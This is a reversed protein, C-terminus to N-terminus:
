LMSSAKRVMSRRVEASQSATLSSPRVTRATTRRSMPTGTHTPIAGFRVKLLSAFRQALLSSIKPPTQTQGAVRGSHRSRKIRLRGTESTQPM